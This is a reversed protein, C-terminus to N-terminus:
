IPNFIPWFHVQPWVLLLVKCFVHDVLHHSKLFFLHYKKSLDHWWVKRLIDFFRLRECWLPTGLFNFFQFTYDFSYFSIKTLYKATRFRSRKLNEIKSGNRLNVSRRFNRYTILIFYSCFISHFVSICFKPVFLSFVSSWFYDDFWWGRWWSSRKGIPFMQFYGMCLYWCGNKMRNLFVPSLKALALITFNFIGKFMLLLYRSARTM